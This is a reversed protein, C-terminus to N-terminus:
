FLTPRYISQTNAVNEIQQVEDENSEEITVYKFLRWTFLVVNILSVRM